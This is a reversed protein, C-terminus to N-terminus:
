GTKTLGDSGDKIFWMWDTDSDNVIKSVEEYDIGLVGTNNASMRYKYNRIIIINTRITRIGITLIQKRVNLNKLGFVNQRYIKKFLKKLTM